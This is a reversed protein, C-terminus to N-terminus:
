KKLQNSVQQAGQGAGRSEWGGRQGCWGVWGGVMGRRGVVGKVNM